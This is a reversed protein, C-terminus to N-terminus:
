KEGWKMKTRLVDFFSQESVRLLKVEHISKRCIVYAGADLSLGVQGDVTLFAGQSCSVVRIEVEASDQIVLPRNSLTHPSVPTIVWAQVQPSLIPGGAALSYATSGTPTALIIGDAKYHSVFVQNIRVEFNAVRAISGHNIVIDNLAGYFSVAEGSRHLECNLMSRMDFRFKGALLSELVPYMDSLSVETLFGLTGLNVGLIPVGANALARASALLTGDGGLVIAFEPKEAALDCRPLVQEQAAYHSSEPDVIVGVDRSRLWAVLDPVITALEPKSPKSLIAVTKM